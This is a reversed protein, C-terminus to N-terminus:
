WFYVVAYAVRALTYGVVARNILGNRVGAISAMCVAGVLLTYNEVANANASENRRLLSLTDQAIKGSSVAAATPGNDKLDERPSYANNISYYQKLIQPSLAAYALIFNLILAAPGLNPIPNQSPGLGLSTLIAM